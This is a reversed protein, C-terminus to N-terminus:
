RCHVVDGATVKRILGADQRLLLGGDGDIGVAEGELHRHHSIVKVRKGLTANFFGWKDIIAQASKKQFLLYNLELRRLLEQLLVIRNVEERKQEKLSTAGEVLAKKDNNVNLGIGIVVFRIEDTEANMETLIGGVKKNHILLDNPWKIKTDLGCSEKVAECVSVAAALTLIPSQAPM